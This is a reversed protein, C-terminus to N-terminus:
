HPPEQQIHLSQQCIYCHLVGPLAFPAGSGPLAGKARPEYRVTWVPEHTGDGRFGTIRPQRDRILSSLQARNHECIRRDIESLPLEPM